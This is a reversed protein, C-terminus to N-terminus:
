ANTNEKNFILKQYATGYKSFSTKFIQNDSLYRAMWLPIAGSCKLEMLVKDEDLIRQGYVEGALTLDATRALINKDFTIRFGDDEKSYFAQRDYSLFVTPRLEKYLRLAYDIERQIQTRDKSIRGSFWDTAEKLSIDVRRKYVVRKYKKKLEAFVTSEDTATKYSRIRLKEKYEPKEISRRILLYTPTDYYLNRITTEGYKDPYTRDSIFGIMKEFQDTSLIYKIEYRKFVTEYAM